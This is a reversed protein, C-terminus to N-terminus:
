WPIRKRQPRVNLWLVNSLVSVSVMLVWSDFLFNFERIHTKRSPFHLKHCHGMHLAGQISLLWLNMPRPLLRASLAPVLGPRLALSQLQIVWFKIIGSKYKFKQKMQVKSLASKKKGDSM